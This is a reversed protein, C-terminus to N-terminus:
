TTTASTVPCSVGDIKIDYYSTTASLNVGTFTITEGGLRTGYRPTIATL